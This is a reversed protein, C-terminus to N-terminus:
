LSLLVSSSSSVLSSVHLFIGSSVNRIGSEIVCTYEPDNIRIGYCTYMGSEMACPYDLPQAVTNQHSPGSYEVARANLRSLNVTLACQTTVVLVYRGADHLEQLISPFMGLRKTYEHFKNLEELHETFIDEYMDQSFPIAM